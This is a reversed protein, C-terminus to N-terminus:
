QYVTVPVAKPAWCDWCSGLIKRYKQESMRLITSTSEYNCSPPHLECMMYEKLLPYHDFIHICGDGEDFFCFIGLFGTSSKWLFGVPWLQTISGVRGSLSTQFTYSKELKLERFYFSPPLFSHQTLGGITSAVYIVDKFYIWLLLPKIEQSKYWQPVIYQEACLFTCHTISLHISYLCDNFSYQWFVIFLVASKWMLINFSFASYLRYIRHNQSGLGVYLCVQFYIGSQIFYNEKTLM